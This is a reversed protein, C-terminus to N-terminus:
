TMAEQNSLATGTGYGDHVASVEGKEKGEGDVDKNGMETRNASTKNVLFGMSSAWGETM